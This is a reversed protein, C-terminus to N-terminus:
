IAVYSAEIPCFRESRKVAALDMTRMACERKSCRAEKETGERNGRAAIM